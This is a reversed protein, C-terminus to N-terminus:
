AMSFAFSPDRKEFLTLWYGLQRAFATITKEYLYRLRFRHRVFWYGSIKFLTLALFGVFTFLTLFVLGLGLSGNGYVAESLNHMIGLHYSVCPQADHSDTCSDNPSIALGSVAMDMEHNMVVISIVGFSIIGIALFSLMIRMLKNNGLYNM